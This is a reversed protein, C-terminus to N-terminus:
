SDARAQHRDQAQEPFHVGHAGEASSKVGLATRKDGLQQSPGLAGRASEIGADPSIRDSARDDLGVRVPHRM